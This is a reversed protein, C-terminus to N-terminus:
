SWSMRSKLCPPATSQYPQRPAARSRAGHTKPSYQSEWIAKTQTYPIAPM